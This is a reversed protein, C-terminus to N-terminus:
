IGLSKKKDKRSRKSEEPDVLSGTRQISYSGPTPTCDTQGYFQCSVEMEQRHVSHMVIRKGKGEEYQKCPAEAYPSCYKVNGKRTMGM